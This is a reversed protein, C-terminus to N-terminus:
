ESESAVCAAEPLLDMNGVMQTGLSTVRLKANDYFLYEVSVQDTEREYLRSLLFEEKSKHSFWHQKDSRCPDPNYRIWVLNGPQTQLLVKTGCVMRNWEDKADYGRHQHEDVEVLFTSKGLRVVFDVFMYSQSADDLKRLNIYVNSEVKHDALLQSVRKEKKKVRTFTTCSDIHDM